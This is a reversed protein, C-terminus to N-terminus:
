LHVFNYTSFEDKVIYDELESFGKSEYLNKFGGDPYFETLAVGGLMNDLIAQLQQQAKNKRKLILNERETAERDSNNIINLVRHKVIKSNFPNSIFDVAGLDLSKIEEEPNSAATIVVVPIDSLDPNNSKIRLFDHGDIKPMIIDLLIIDIENQKANLINLADEGNDAEYIKFSDKFIESLMIRNVKSDDALLMTHKKNM